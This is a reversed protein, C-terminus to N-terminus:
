ASVSVITESGDGDTGAGIDFATHSDLEGLATLRPAQWPTKDTPGDSM